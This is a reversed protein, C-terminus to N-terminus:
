SGAKQTALSVRGSSVAQSVTADSKDPKGNSGRWHHGIVEPINQNEFARSAGGVRNM